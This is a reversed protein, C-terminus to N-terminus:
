NPANGPKPHRTQWQEWHEKTAPQRAASHRIREWTPAIGWRNGPEMEELRRAREMALDWLVVADGPEAWACADAQQLPGGVWRPDLAREVAFARRALDTQDDFFYAVTGQQRRLPRDFPLSDVAKELLALSQLLPDEAEPPTHDEGREAAAKRTAEDELRLRDVKARTREALTALDGGGAQLWILWGAIFLVPLARLSRWATGPVHGDPDAREDGAARAPHLALSFLWAATLALAIRHGPVDIAGHLPLLAAAALCAARLARERGRMVGRAAFILALVVALLLFVAAPAGFEAALWTWDSEPHLHQSENAVSSRLRYQPFIYRFQGAGVGTWAHERIMDLTDLATPVRFDKALLIERLEQEGATEDGMGAPEPAATITQTIREKVTSETLAFAGAFAAVLLVVAWRGNRGLYKWGMLPLWLVAGTASLVIGARSISWAAAAYACVLTALVAVALALWRAERIAQVICGLGAVVGMALLLASHNRNPLIGFRDAGAGSRHILGGQALKSVIAYAAIACVFALALHRVSGGKVRHGALWLAGLPIM